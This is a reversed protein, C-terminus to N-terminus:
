SMPVRSSHKGLEYVLHAVEPLILRTMALRVAPRSGPMLFVITGGIVGATARSLMAAAGIEEFSLYRFLEGFGPLEREFLSRLAEVTVDRQSVGTGGTVLVVHARVRTVAELVAVRIADREDPVINRGVLQHGTDRLLSCILEGSADNELTRTDSVTLVFASVHQPAAKRHEHTGM